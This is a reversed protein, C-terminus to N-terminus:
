KTNVLVNSGHLLMYGCYKCLLIRKGSVREDGRYFWKQTITVWTTHPDSHDIHNKCVHCDWRQWKKM